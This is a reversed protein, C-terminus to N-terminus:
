IVFVLLFLLFLFAATLQGYYREGIRWFLM